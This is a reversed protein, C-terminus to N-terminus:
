QTRETLLKMGLNSGGGQYIHIQHTFTIVTIEAQCKQENIVTVETALNIKQKRTMMLSTIYVYSYFLSRIQTHLIDNLCM